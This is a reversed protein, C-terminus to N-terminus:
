DHGRYREEVAQLERFEELLMNAYQVWGGALGANFDKFAAYPVVHYCFLYLFRAETMIETMHPAQPIVALHLVVTHRTLKLRSALTTRLEASNLVVRDSGADIQVEVPQDYIEPFDKSVRTVLQEYARRVAPVYAQVATTKPTVKLPM